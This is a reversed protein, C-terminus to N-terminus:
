AAFRTSSFFRSSYRRNAYHSEQRKCLHESEMALHDLLRFPGLRNPIKSTEGGGHSLRPHSKFPLIELGAELLFSGGEAERKNEIMREHIPVLTNAV